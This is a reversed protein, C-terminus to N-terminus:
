PVDLAAIVADLKELHAPWTPARYGDLRGALARRLPSGPVSLAEIAAHWGRGDLPDLLHAFARGIERHVAIDSAVVPLGSAAAEVVPLGYGEIFSPMLLATAGRMLRALGPTSLGTVETVYPATATCRDLLDIVNEVEWGRRGVIVLHPTDAGHRAALERWLQLLLLHNKRSEITGCALFTPRSFHAPEGARTSFAPEVGLPAVTIPKPSFGRAALHSSFRAGVDTSNVIVAAAHRAITEMRRAHRAAEGPPGYEPHSIPILDHVFFIPRIDRRDYLWDFRGPLDLRLHASHLYVAGPPLAAIGRARLSRLVTAAQVRRRRFSDRREGAPTPRERTGEALRRYIPDDEARMDEVWGAGVAEVVARAQARDIVRPGFASTVLGFRPGSGAFVHRAYALDVRDIGTPSAHRMRTILRTLDFAIAREPM